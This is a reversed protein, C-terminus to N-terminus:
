IARPLTSNAICHKARAQLTEYIGYAVSLREDPLNPETGPRGAPEKLRGTQAILAAEADPHDLSAALARLGAEPARCTQEFSVFFINATDNELIFAFAAIWYELWYALSQPSAAANMNPFAIHKVHAGFELHGVDRMYRSAFPDATHLASFNRHQQWLSHAQSVPDRFPIVILCDPFLRRLLPIRAINANNKSIYRFNGPRRTQSFAVKAMHRQFFTEFEPNSDAAAWLEIREDTYKEKWFARWLIEEFAEPSEFGVMMGDGHARPKLREAKRFPATLQTWLLPCLV